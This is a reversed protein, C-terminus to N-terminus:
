REPPKPAPYRKDIDEALAGFTRVAAAKRMAEASCRPCSGNAMVPTRCTACRVRPPEYPM